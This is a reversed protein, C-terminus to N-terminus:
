QDAGLSAALKGLASLWKARAIQLDIDESIVQSRALFRENEYSLLEIITRRGLKFQEFVVDFANDTDKVMSQLRQMREKRLEILAWLRHAENEQDALTADLLADTSRAHASASNAKSNATNGDFLNAKVNLALMNQGFYRKHGNYDQETQSDVMLEVTPKWWANAAKADAYASDRRAKAGLIAPHGQQLQQELDDPEFRPMFEALTPPTASPTLRCACLQRLQMVLDNTSLARSDRSTAVQSIRTKVLTLDSIRGKDFSAIDSVMREFRGLAILQEDGLQLLQRQRHWEFYSETLQSTLAETQEAKQAATAEADKERAKINYDTKGGDFLLQTAGIGPQFGDTTGNYITSRTRGVLSSASVQPLLAGKAADTASEMARINETAALLRPHAHVVQRVFDQLSAAHAPATATLTLVALALARMGAHSLPNKAM